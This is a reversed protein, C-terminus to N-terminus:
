QAGLTQIWDEVERMEEPQLMSGLPMQSGCRPMAMLKNYILSGMANGPVVLAQGNCTATSSTRGALADLADSKSLDLNGAFPVSAGVHCGPTACKPKFIDTEVAAASVPTDCGGDDMVCPPTTADIFFREPDQLSGPCGSCLWGIGVSL